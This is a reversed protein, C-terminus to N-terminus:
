KAKWGTNPNVNEEKVYLTEGISGDLRQFIDGINGVIRNEPDGQGVIVRGAGPKAAANGRSSFGGTIIDFLPAVTEVFPVQVDNAIRNLACIPMRQYASHEFFIGNGAGRIANGTVSIHFMDMPDSSLHIGTEWKATGQITIDNDRVSINDMPSSQSRVLIGNNCPNTAVIMNGAITVDHGSSCVIGNGGGTFCLNGTVLAHAMVRDGGLFIATKTFPDDNVVLNGTILVSDGGIALHIPIRQPNGLPSNLATVRVTNNQITLENVDTCFINGGSIENNSFKIRRAPDPGAFGSLSVAPAPNGHKIFNSDFILDSPAVFIKGPDKNGTPELDICSDFGPPIMEIYCNRVSVFEVERQFALGSRKNQILQCGEIRVNRVKKEARRIAPDEAKGLFRIGDGATQFVRVREVVIEESGENFFLGHMQENTKGMTLYAGHLSFDQFTLHLSDRTEILHTNATDLNQQPMLRIITVGPGAGRIALNKKGFLGMVANKSTEPSRRFDYVGPGFRIQASETELSELSALLLEFGPRSDTKWIDVQRKKAERQAPAALTVKGNNQFSAITTVHLGAGRITVPTGLDLSSFNATQSFLGTGGVIMAADHVTRGDLEVTLGEVSVRAYDDLAICDKRNLIATSNSVPTQFDHELLITTADMVQMITSVLTSTGLGAGAVTIRRGVHIDKDFPVPDPDDPKFLKGKLQKTPMGAGGMIVEKVDGRNVLAVITTVLDAAGPIAINKGVDTPRLTGDSDTLVTSGETINAQELFRGDPVCGFDNVDLIM